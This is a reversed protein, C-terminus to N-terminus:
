NIHLSRHVIKDMEQLNKVLKKEPNEFIQSSTCLCKRKALEDFFILFEGVNAKMKNIAM